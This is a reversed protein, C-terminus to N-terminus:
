PPCGRQWPQVVGFYENHCSKAKGTVSPFGNSVSVGTLLNSPSYRQNRPRAQGKNSRMSCFERIFNRCFWISSQQCATLGDGFNRAETVERVKTICFM